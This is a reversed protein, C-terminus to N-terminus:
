FYMTYEIINAELFFIKVQCINAHEDPICMAVPAALVLSCLSKTGAGM